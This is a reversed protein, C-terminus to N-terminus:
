IGTGPREGMRLHGRRGDIPYDYERVGRARRRKGRQKCRNSCFRAAPQTSFLPAACHACRRNSDFTEEM